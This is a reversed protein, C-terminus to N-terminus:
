IDEQRNIAEIVEDRLQELHVVLRLKGQSRYMEQWLAGRQMPDRGVLFAAYHNVAGAVALERGSVGAEGGDHGRVPVESVELWRASGDKRRIQM